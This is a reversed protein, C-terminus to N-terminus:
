IGGRTCSTYQMVEDDVTIYVYRKKQDSLKNAIAATVGWVTHDKLMGAVDVLADYAGRALLTTIYESNPIGVSNIYTNESDNHM